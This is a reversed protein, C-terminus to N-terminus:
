QKTGNYVASTIGAHDTIRCCKELAFKVLPSMKDGTNSVQGVEGM